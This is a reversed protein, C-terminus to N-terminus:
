PRAVEWRDRTSSGIRRWRAASPARHRLNEGPLDIQRRQRLAVDSHRPRWDLAFHWRPMEIDAVPFMPRLSRFTENSHPTASETQHSPGSPPRDAKRATAFRWRIPRRGADPRRPHRGALDDYLHRAEPSRSDPGGTGQR